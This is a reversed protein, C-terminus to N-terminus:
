LSRVPRRRSRSSLRDARRLKHRHPPRPPQVPRIIRWWPLKTARHLTRAILHSTMPYATSFILDFTTGRVARLGAGIAPLYWGIQADPYYICSRALKRLGNALPGPSAPTVDDGGTHLMRKGVRSIELSPTRIVRQEPFVLEPDRHYSGVSPALVTAEWGYSELDQAFRSARLSGIGCLAPLLLCRGPCTAPDRPWGCTTMSAEAMLSM